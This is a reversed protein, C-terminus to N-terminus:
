PQTLAAHNGCHGDCQGCGSCAHPESRVSPFKALVGHELDCRSLWARWTSPVFRFDLARRYSTTEWGPEARHHDPPVPTLELAMMTRSGALAARPWIHTWAYIGEARDYQEIVRAYADIGVLTWLATASAVACDCDYSRSSKLRRFTRYVDFGSGHGMTRGEDGDYEALRWILKGTTRVICALNGGPCETLISRAADRTEQEAMSITAAGFVGQVRAGVGRGSFMVVRGGGAVQEVDRKPGAFPFMM